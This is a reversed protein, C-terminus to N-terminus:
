GKQSKSGEPCVKTCTGGPEQSVKPESSSAAVSAVVHLMMGAVCDSQALRKKYQIAKQAVRPWPGKKIIYGWAEVKVEKDDKSAM